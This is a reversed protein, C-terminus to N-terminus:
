AAPCPFAAAMAKRYVMIAPAQHERPNAALWGLLVDRQRALIRGDATPCFDPVIQPSLSTFRISIQTAGNIWSLCTLQHAVDKTDSCVVRLDDGTGLLLPSRATDRPRDIVVPPPAAAALMLLLAAGALTRM